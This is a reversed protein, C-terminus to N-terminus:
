RFAFIIDCCSLGLIFVPGTSIGVCRFAAGAPFLKVDM